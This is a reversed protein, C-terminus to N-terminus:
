GTAGSLLLFGLDSGTYSAPAQTQNGLTYSAGNLTFARGSATQTPPSVYNPQNLNDTTGVAGGPLGTTDGKPRPVTPAGRAESTGTASGNLGNPAQDPATCLTNLNAGGGIGYVTANGQANSPATKGTSSRAPNENRPTTSQYGSGSDDLDCVPAATPTDSAFEASLKGSGDTDDLATYADSIIFPYLVLVEQIGPLRQEAITGLTVLNSLLTPLNQQNDALLSQLTQASTVGNDLLERLNPDSTVLQQSLLNLNHSFTKLDGAVDEQTNLVTKGDNALKLTQPLAAEASKLLADGNVILSSLDPGADNTALALQTIVTTLNKRDVSNVLSDLNSLLVADSVPIATNSVPIVNATTTFYPGSDTQPTLDVYQEGVASLDAVQATTDMPIKVGHNIKLDVEVGTPTLHLSGVMGIEVGRYTVPATTYIGGSDTLEMKLTYPGPSFHVPGVSHIGVYDFGTYVVGFFSLLAFVVLQIRVTRTIV